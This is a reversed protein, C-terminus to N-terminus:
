TTTLPAGPLHSQGLEAATLTKRATNVVVSNQEALIAGPVKSAGFIKRFVSVRILLTGLLGSSELHSLSKNRASSM